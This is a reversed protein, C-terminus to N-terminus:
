PTVEDSIPTEIPAMSPVVEGDVRPIESDVRSLLLIEVRRNAARDAETSGEALPRTAARGAASMREAPVGFGYLARLVATARETSLQWNDVFGGVPARDDTHGEIRIGNPLAAISAAVRRLVPLAEPRLGARGSPFLVAGSIRIVVGEKTEVVEIEGGLGNVTAYDNIAASVQAFAPAGVGDPPNIAPAIQGVPTDAIAVPVSDTFVETNFAKSLSEAMSKFKAADTQSMSYLVIFFVMLLTIMDAYTILWREDAHEAGHAGHRKKKAM